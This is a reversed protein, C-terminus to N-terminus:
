SFIKELGKRAEESSVEGNNAMGMLDSVRECIGDIENDRIGKKGTFFYMCNERKNKMGDYLSDDAMVFSFLEGASQYVIVGWAM